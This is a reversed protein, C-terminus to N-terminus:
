AEAHRFTYLSANRGFKTDPNVLTIPLYRQNPSALNNHPSSVTLYDTKGLKYGGGSWVVLNQAVPDNSPNNRLSGAFVGAPANAYQLIAQNSTGIDFEALTNITRDANVSFYQMRGYNQLTTSNYSRAYKRFIGSSCASQSDAIGHDQTHGNVAGYMTGSAEASFTFVNAATTFVRYKDKGGSGSHIASRWTVYGRGNNDIGATLNGSSLITSDATVSTAAGVTVTAGSVTVNEINKATTSGNVYGVFNAMNPSGVVSFTLSSAAVNSNAVSGFTPTASAAFTVVVYSGLDGNRYFPLLLKDTAIDFYTQLQTLNDTRYGTPDGANASWSLTTGSTRTLSHLIASYYSGGYNRQAFVGVTTSDIKKGFIYTPAYTYSATNAEAGVTVTTGSAGCDVCKARMLTASSDTAVAILYQNDISILKQFTGGTYTLAASAGVTITAATAIDVCVVSSDNLRMAVRNSTGVLAVGNSTDITTAAAKLVLENSVTPAVGAGNYTMLRIAPYNNTVTKYYLFARTADLSIWNVTGDNTSLNLATESDIFWPDLNGSHRWTGGADAQGTLHFHVIDGPLVQGLVKNNGDLIGVPYKGQMNDFIVINSGLTLTTADAMKITQGYASMNLAQVAKSSSTLTASATRTESGTGASAGWSTTGNLSNLVRPVGDSIQTPLINTDWSMAGNLSALMRKVGDSIQGPVGNSETTAQSLNYVSVVTASDVRVLYTTSGETFLTRGNMLVGAGPAITVTSTSTNLVTFTFQSGVEYGTLAAIITAASPLTLVRATTPAITLVGNFIQAFSLTASDDALATVTCLNVDGATSSIQASSNVKALTTTGTVALTSNITVPNTATGGNWPDNVWVGSSYILWDAITGSGSKVKPAFVLAGTLENYSTVQGAMWNSSNNNDIIEIWKGEDFYLYTQTTFSLSGSNAITNSTLSTGKFLEMTARVLQVDSQPSWESATTM